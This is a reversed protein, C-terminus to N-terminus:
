DIAILNIDFKIDERPGITGSPSGSTGYALEYPIYLSGSGGKKFYRLGEEWGDIVMGAGLEVTLAVNRDYSSDFKTDDLHYGTYHVTVTQGVEPFDGTGEQDVTYILGSATRTFDTISKRELYEELSPYDTQSEEDCSILGLGSLALLIIVSFKM